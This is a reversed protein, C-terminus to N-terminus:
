NSHPLRAFTGAAVIARSLESGLAGLQEAEVDSLVAWPAAALDDTRQEIAARHAMGATTLAGSDDLWGRQQVAGVAAAWAQDSWGRTAQLVSAPVAGTAAHIV